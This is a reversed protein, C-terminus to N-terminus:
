ALKYIFFLSCSKRTEEKGGKMIRLFLKELKIREVVCVHLIKHFEIEIVALKYFDGTLFFLGWPYLRM